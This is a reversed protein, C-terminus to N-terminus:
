LAQGMGSCHKHEVKGMRVVINARPWRFGVYEASGRRASRIWSNAM